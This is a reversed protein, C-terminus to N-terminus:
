MYFLRNDKIFVFSQKSLRAPPIEFYLRMKVIAADNECKDNCLPVNTALFNSELCNLVKFSM